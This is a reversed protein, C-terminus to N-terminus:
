CPRLLNQRITNTGAEDIAWISEGVELSEYWGDLNQAM